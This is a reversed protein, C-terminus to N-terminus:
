REIFISRIHGAAAAVATANAAVVTGALAAVATIKANVLPPEPVTVNATASMDCLAIGAVLPAGEYVSMACVDDDVPEIVSVAGVTRPADPATMGAVAKWAFHVSVDSL